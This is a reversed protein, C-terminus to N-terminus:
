VAAKGCREMLWEGDLLQLGPGSRFAVTRVGSDFGLFGDTHSYVIRSNKLLAFSGDPYAFAVYIDSDRKGACVPVAGATTHFEHQIVLEKDLLMGRGQPDLILMAGPVPFAHAINGMHLPWPTLRWETLSLQYVRTEGIIVLQDGYHQMGRVIRDTTRDMAVSFVQKEGQYVTLKGAFDV